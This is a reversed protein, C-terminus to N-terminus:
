HPSLRTEELRPRPRGFRRADIRLGSGRRGARAVAVAVGGGCTMSLVPAGGARGTWSGSAVPRGLGDAAIEVDAAYVMLGRQEKLFLRVADKAALRALLWDTKTAPAGPLARWTEREGRSLVLHALGERWIRGDAEM